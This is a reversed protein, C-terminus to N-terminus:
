SGQSVVQNNLVKKETERVNKHNNKTRTENYRKVDVVIQFTMQTKCGYLSSTKVYGIKCSILEKRPEKMIVILRAKKKVVSLNLM